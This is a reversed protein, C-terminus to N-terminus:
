LLDDRIIGRGALAAHLGREDDPFVHVEQEVQTRHSGVEASRLRELSETRGGHVAPPDPALCRLIVREVAPDMDKVVIAISAPASATQRGMVDALTEGEFPRRGAFMEYLVLGLAYIDSKVTVESRALQEPAKYAPTGPRIEAGELQGALGGLGFAKGSSLASARRPSFAQGM